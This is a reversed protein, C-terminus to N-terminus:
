EVTVAFDFYGKNNGYDTNNIAFQLVGDAPAVFTRGAGALTWKNGTKVMLSGHPLTPGLCYSQVGCIGDPGGSGAWVGLNVSGYAAIKVTQGSSLM